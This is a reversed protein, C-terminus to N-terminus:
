LVMETKEWEAKEWEVSVSVVVGEEAGTDVGMEVDVDVGGEGKEEEIIPM